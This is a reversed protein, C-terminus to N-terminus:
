FCSGCAKACCGLLFSIDTLGQYTGMTSKDRLWQSSLLDRGLFHSLMRMEISHAAYFCIIQDLAFLFTFVCRKIYFIGTGKRASGMLYFSMDNRNRRERNERKSNQVASGMMLSISTATPFYLIRVRRGCPLVPESKKRKTGTAPSSGARSQEWPIKLGRHRGNWWVPM